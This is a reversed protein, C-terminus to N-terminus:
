QSSPKNRVASTRTILAESGGNERMIKRKRSKNAIVEALPADPYKEWEQPARHRLGSEIEDALDDDPAPGQYDLAQNAVHRNARNRLAKHLPIAKRAAHPAEGYVNRRDRKYSLEKKEQPTRKRM